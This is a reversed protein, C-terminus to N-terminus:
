RLPFASSMCQGGIVQGAFVIKAISWADFIAYISCCKVQRARKARGTKCMRRNLLIVM